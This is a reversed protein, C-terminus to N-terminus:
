GYFVTRYRFLIRDFFRPKDYPLDDGWDFAFKIRQLLAGAADEFGENVGVDYSIVFTEDAPVGSITVSGNLNDRWEINPSASTVDNISVLPSPFTLYVTGSGFDELTYSALGFYVGTYSQAEQHAQDILDQILTDDQSHDVRLFAKAQELTVVM